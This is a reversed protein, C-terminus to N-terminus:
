VGKRSIAITGIVPAPVADSGTRGINAGPAFFM